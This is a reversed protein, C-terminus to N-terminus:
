DSHPHEIAAQQVEAPQVEAPQVEAQEQFFYFWVREGGKRLWLQLIITLAILLIPGGVGSAHVVALLSGFLWYSVFMIPFTIASSIFSAHVNIFTLIILNNFLTIAFDLPYESVFLITPLISATVLSFLLVYNFVYFSPLTDYKKCLRRHCWLTVFVSSVLPLQMIVGEWSISQRGLLVVYLDFLLGHILPISVFTIM